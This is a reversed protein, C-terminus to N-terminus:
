TANTPPERASGVLLFDVPMRASRLRGAENSRVPFNQAVRLASRGKLGLPRAAGSGTGGILELPTWARNVRTMAQSRTVCTARM